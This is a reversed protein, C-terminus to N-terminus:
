EEAKELLEKICNFIIEVLKKDDYKYNVSQEKLYENIISKNKLRQIIQTTNINTKFLFRLIYEIENEAAIYNIQINEKKIQQLINNKLIIKNNEIISNKYYFIEDNIIFIKSMILEQIYYMTYEKLLVDPHKRNMSWSLVYLHGIKKVSKIDINYEEIFDYAFKIANYIEYKDFWEIKEKHLKLNIMQVLEDLNDLIIKKNEDKNFEWSSFINQEFM